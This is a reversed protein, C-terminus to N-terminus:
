QFIETESWIYHFDLAQKEESEESFNEEIAKIVAHCFRNLKNLYKLLHKFM